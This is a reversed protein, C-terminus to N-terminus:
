FFVPHWFKHSLSIAVSSQPRHRILGQMEKFTLITTFRVQAQFTTKDYKLADIAIEHLAKSVEAPVMCQWQM